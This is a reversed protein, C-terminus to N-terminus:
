DVIRVVSGNDLERAGATVIMDASTLEGTVLVSEGRFEGPTVPVREIEGGALCRWVWIHGSVDGVLSELPVIFGASKAAASGPLSVGVRVSMGPLIRADSPQQMVVTAPYTHTRADSQAGIERFSAAFSRGPLSDLTVNLELGAVASDISRKKGGGASLNAVDEEPVSVVIEVTDLDQLSVVPQMPQVDQFKEAIRAVIVGGFPARLETDALANRAASVGAEATRLSSGAVNLATRFSDYQAQPVVKKKYLEDYRQFSSQAQSYRARAQSLQSQADALRTRFDRPDIRAILDGKQVRTGADVPFDVLPGSVRFSMNVRRSGQVTGFYQRQEGSGADFARVARVPVPAGCASSAGLLAAALAIIVSKKM